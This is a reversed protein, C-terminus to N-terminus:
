AFAEEGLVLNDILRTTGIRAAVALLARDHVRAIPQLTDADAVAVYDIVDFASELHGRVQSELIEPDREGDNFSIWAARLGASIALARAREHESLYRNRSSKALGDPDRVTKMGVMQMPMDLDHVMRELVKWQQYDKRGFVAIAPGVMHFLKSVITTVGDFHGPRFAGELTETLKAVRVQSVFGDPLMADRDPAFLIDVGRSACAAGDEPLTRPYRSFDDRPGFQLPNVFVSVVVRTAGQKRAEDILALHGEHLAGMTPVFGVREGTMRFANCRARLASPEHVLDM